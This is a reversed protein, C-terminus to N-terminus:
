RSCITSQNIPKQLCASKQGQLRQDREQIDVEQIGSACEERHHTCSPEHDRRHNCEVSKSVIHQAEGKVACKLMLEAPSLALAPMSKVQGDPECAEKMSRCIPPPNTLSSLDQSRLRYAKQESPKATTM